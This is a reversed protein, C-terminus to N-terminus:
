AHGSEHHSNKEKRRQHAGKGKEGMMVKDIAEKLHRPKILASQERM